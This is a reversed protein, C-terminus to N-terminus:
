LCVSASFQFAITIATAMLGRFDGICKFKISSGLFIATTSPSSRVLGSVCIQRVLGVSDPIINEFM